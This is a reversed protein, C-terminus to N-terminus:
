CIKSVLIFVFLDLLIDFHLIGKEFNKLDDVLDFIDDVDDLDKWFCKIEEMIKGLAKKKDLKFQELFSIKEQVSEIYQNALSFKPIALNIIAIPSSSLSKTIIQEITPLLKKDDKIGSLHGFLSTFEEDVAEPFISHVENHIRYLSLLKNSLLTIRDQKM